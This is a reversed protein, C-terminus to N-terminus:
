RLVSKRLIKMSCKKFIMPGIRFLDNPKKFFEYETMEFTYTLSLTILILLHTKNYHVSKFPLIIFFYSLETTFIVTDEDNYEM